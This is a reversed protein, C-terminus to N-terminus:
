FLPDYWHATGSAGDPVHLIRIEETLVGDIQSMLSASKVM